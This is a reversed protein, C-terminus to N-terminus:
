RPRFVIRLLYINSQIKLHILMCKNRPPKKSICLECMGVSVYVLRVCGYDIQQQISHRILATQTWKRYNFEAAASRLIREGKCALASLLFSKMCLACYRGPPASQSPYLNQLWVDFCVLYIFGTEIFNFCFITYEVNRFVIKLDGILLFIIKM